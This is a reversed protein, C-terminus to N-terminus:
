NLRRIQLSYVRHHGVVTHKRISNPLMSTTAAAENLSLGAGGGEIFRSARDAADEARPFPLEVNQLLEPVAPLVDKAASDGDGLNEIGDKLGITM